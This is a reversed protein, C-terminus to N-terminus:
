YNGRLMGKKQAPLEPFNQNMSARSMNLFRKRQLPSTEEGTEVPPQTGLVTNSYQEFAQKNIPQNRKPAKLDPPIFSNSDQPGVEPPTEPVPERPRLVYEPIEM